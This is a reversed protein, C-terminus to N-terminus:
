ESNGPAPPPAPLKDGLGFVDLIRRTDKMVRVVKDEVTLIETDHPQPPLTMFIDKPLPAAQQYIEPQMVEGANLKKQWGPPLEGGRDLKKQLGPPLGGQRKWAPGKGAGKNKKNKKGGKDRRDDEDGDDQHNRRKNKLYEELKRREAENWKGGPKGPDSAKGAESQQRNSEARAPTSKAEKKPAEAPRTTPSPPSKRQFIRRFWSQKESTDQSQAQSPSAFLTALAILALIHATKM